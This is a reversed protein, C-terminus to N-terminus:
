YKKCGKIVTSTSIDIIDTNEKKYADLLPSYYELEIRKGNDFFHMICILGVFTKEIDFNQTDVLVNMVKNGNVGEDFTYMVNDGHVHGACIMIINPYKSVLENWLAPGDYGLFATVYNGDENKYFHKMSDWDYKIPLLTANWALYSHTSIIVKRDPHQSIVEGVWDVADKTPNFDVAVFLYKEGNIDLKRYSNTISNNGYRGINPRYFGDFQKVYDEDNGFYDDIQYDDHNGRVIIYPVVGKLQDVAKKAIDWEYHKSGNETSFSMETDNCKSEHTLDGMVVVQAMKKEKANDAIWKFIKEINNTDNILDGYTIYQPDGVFAFSYDAGTVPEKEEFNDMVWKALQYGKLQNAFIDRLNIGLENAKEEITQM